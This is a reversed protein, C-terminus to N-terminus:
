RVGDAAPQAMRQAFAEGIRAIGERWWPEAVTDYADYTAPRFIKLAPYWPSDERKLFWYWLSAPGSTLLMWTPINQSGAVHVTTNSTSIVLDMAAVQAFFDDMNKLPDVEPDQFVDVGLTKKVAQLEEACDGYQLNVFTAGPVSLIPAWNILETSKASGVTDNKSRWSLGVVPRGPAIAQYRARLAATRQQDAKLYGKHAPFHQFSPRFYQGLSAIATQFDIGEPSSTATGQKQYRLVTIEPFSRKFVPVMRPSCELICRGVRPILEALMGAYLVEDGLGQETSILLTKGTLDEGRWYNPPAPCRAIREKEGLFRSEYDPWGIDFHTLRLAVLSRKYRLEGPRPDIGIASNLFTLAEDFRCRDVMVASINNYAQAMPGFRLAQEYSAVAKEPDGKFKYANGLNIYADPDNPNLAISTQYCEIARNLFAKDVVHLDTLAMGLNFHVAPSKPNLKIAAEYTNVAEANRGAARYAAGLNVLMAFDRPMKAVARKILRIAEDFANSQLALVGLLHLASANAPDLALVQRYCGQALRLHGQQHHSQGMALTKAITDAKQSASQSPLNARRKM